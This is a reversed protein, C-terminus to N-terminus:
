IQTINSEFRRIKSVAEKGSGASLQGDM